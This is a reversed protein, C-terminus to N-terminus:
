PKWTPDYREVNYTRYIQGGATQGYTERITATGGRLTHLFTLAGDRLCTHTDWDNLHDRSIKEIYSITQPYDSVPTLHNRLHYGIDKRVDYSEKSVDYRDALFDQYLLECNTGWQSVPELGKSVAVLRNSSFVMAGGGATMRVAYNTHGAYFRDSGQQEYRISDLEDVWEWESVRTAYDPDYNPNLKTETRTLEKVEVMEVLAAYSPFTKEVWPKWENNFYDEFAKGSITNYQRQAEKWKEDFENMVPQFARYALPSHRMAEVQRATEATIFSDRLAEYARMVDARLPDLFKPKSKLKIADESNWYKIFYGEMGTELTVDDPASEALKNIGNRAERIEMLIIDRYTHRIETNAFKDYLTDFPATRIQELGKNYLSEANARATNEVDEASHADTYRFVDDMFAKDLEPSLDTSKKIVLNTWASNIKSKYDLIDNYLNAWINATDRLVVTYTLSTRDAENLTTSIVQASSLQPALLLSLLLILFSAHKFM